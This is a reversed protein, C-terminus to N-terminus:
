VGSDVRVFFPMTRLNEFRILIDGRPVGSLDGTEGRSDVDGVGEGGAVGGVTALTESNGGLGAFVSLVSSYTLLLVGYEGLFTLGVLVNV